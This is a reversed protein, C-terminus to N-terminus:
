IRGTSIWFFRKGKGNLRFVCFRRIYERDMVSIATEPLERRMQAAHSGSSLIMRSIWWTDNRISLLLASRRMTRM